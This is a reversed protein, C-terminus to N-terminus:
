FHGQVLLLINLIHSLPSSLLVLVEPLLNLMDQLPMPVLLEFVTEHSEDRVEAEGM